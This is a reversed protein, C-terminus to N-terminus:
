CKEDGFRGWIESDYKGVDMVLNQMKLREQM